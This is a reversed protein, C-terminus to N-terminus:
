SLIRNSKEHIMNVLQPLQEATYGKDNIFRLVLIWSLIIAFLNYKNM